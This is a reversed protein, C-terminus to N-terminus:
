IRNPNFDIDIKVNNDMKYHELINELIQYLNEEKKYKIMIQFRYVNNIKFPNAISPGLIISSKLNTKLIKYIQNSTNKCKEYDKGLVKISTIYYYPPYGLTHRLNMEEQYFGLYDHNKVYQIVYHEENFTQIIVEGKIDSRGSRGAVQSLLQFTEESSRFDPINLSTDANIVGVLSVLPFDLGKAIMQTGILIDYEHNSFQEIIKAHSGKKTTTDLDMRIIRADKFLEKLKEEVKETGLGLNTISEENCEPCKTIIKSGYGCYHCRLTNSTKHYTLTIDCNPCKQVYGCNQCSIFSSYGRRNLLLMVQEKKNLKDSISNILEQSFIQNGKRTEKNMDVVKIIPFEKKNVRTRLEELNYLGKKSRAYTELTPTASGLVIKSNHYESRIKAVELTSYKPNNEQKFSSTHEEDIIIIGINKLPAFVASRAGIVINVEGKAIRRYEDYKEGDSLKSHLVAINDGFRSLFRNTIQETLSIEPVLVIAQKNNNITREILEMYVETKGSGTVGHLLTVQKDTNEINSVVKLQEETLQKKEKLIYNYEKRYTEEIEEKIIKKNLLTNVSSTSIKNLFSKKIRNKEKLLNIIKNQSENGNYNFDNLIIYKDIKKNINVKRRAKLAKTLMVQYCSILTSLTM